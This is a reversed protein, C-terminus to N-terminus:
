LESFRDFHDFSEQQLSRRFGGFGSHPMESRVPPRSPTWASNSAATNNGTIHFNRGPEILTIMM